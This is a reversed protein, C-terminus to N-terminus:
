EDRERPNAIRYELQRIREDLRAVQESDTTRSREIRVTLLEEEHYSAGSPRVRPERGRCDLVFRGSSFFLGHRCSRVRRWSGDSKRLAQLRPRMFSGTPDFLCYEYLGATDLDEPRDYWDTEISEHTVVNIATLFRMTPGFVEQPSDVAYAKGPVGILLDFHYVCTPFSEHPQWRVDTFVQGDKRQKYVDVIGDRIWGVTWDHLSVGPEPPPIRSV